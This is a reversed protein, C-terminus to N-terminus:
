GAFKEEIKVTMLFFLPAIVSNIVAELFIRGQSFYGFYGPKLFIVALMSLVLAKLITAFFLIIVSLLYNSGYVRDGLLGVGYGIVTYMFSSLGLLGGSIIDAIFGIVFGSIEGALSGKFFALSCVILLLFDPNVDRIGLGSYLSSSQFFLLFVVIITYLAYKKV